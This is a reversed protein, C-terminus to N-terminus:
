EVKFAQLSVPRANLTFVGRDAEVSQKDDSLNRLRRANGFQKADLRVSGATAAATNIVALYIGKPTDYRRVVIGKAADTQIVKSPLAPLARYAMAFERMYEPWARNFESIRYFIARPDSAAMALVEDLMSLRGSAENGYLGPSTRGAGYPDSGSLDENYLWYMCIASGEATRFANLYDANGCLFPYRAPALLQIGKENRYSRPDLGDTQAGVDVARYDEMMSVLDVGSLDPLSAIGPTMYEPARRAGQHFLPNGFFLNDDGLNYNQVMFQISPYRAHLMDAAKRFNKRKEAYHWRMFRDRHHDFVWKGADKEPLELKEDAAFRRLTGPNYGTQWAALRHTLVFGAPLTGKKEMAAALELMMNGIDEGVAPNAMDIAFGFPYSNRGWRFPIKRGSPDVAIAEEPLQATGGYELHPFLQLGYRRAIAIEPDLNNRNILFYGPIKKAMPHRANEGSFLRSDWKVDGTAYWTHPALGCYSLALPGYANLGLFAFRAVSWPQPLHDENLYGLIRKPLGEPENPQLRFRELESVPGIEYIRIAHVAAGNSLPDSARSMSFIGFWGSSREPVFLMWSSTMGGSVPLQPIQMFAQRNVSDGLASGIRIGSNARSYFSFSFQMARSTDEPYEVELLYCRDTRMAGRGILYSFWGNNEAVRCNHNFIRTVTTFDERTDRYSRHWDYNLKDSGGYYGLPESSYKVKLGKGGERYLHRDAPDGCYVEDILPRKGFCPTWRERRPLPRLPDVPAGPLTFSLDRSIEVPKKGGEIRCNLRYFEVLSRTLNQRFRNLQKAPVDIKVFRSKGAPIALEVEGSVPRFFYDLLEWHFRLPKGSGSDNRVQLLLRMSETRGTLRLPRKEPVVDVSGDSEITAIAAVKVPPEKEPLDPSPIEHDSFLAELVPSPMINGYLCFLSSEARNGLRFTSRVQIPERDATYDAPYTLPVTITASKGAPVEGSVTQSGVTGAPSTVTVALGTMPEDYPNELDFRLTREGERTQILEANKGECLHDAFNPPPTTADETLSIDDAYVVGEGCLLLRVTATAANAPTEFRYGISIWGDSCGRIDQTMRSGTNVVGSNDRYLPMSPVNLLEGDLMKGTLAHKEKDALEIQLRFLGAPAPATQLNVRATVLYKTGGKVPIGSQFVHAACQPQVGSLRFSRKGSGVTGTEIQVDPSASGLRAWNSREWGTAVTEGGSEFGPNSLLNEAGACCVGLLALGFIPLFRSRM